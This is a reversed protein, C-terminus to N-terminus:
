KYGLVHAGHWKCINAVFTQLLHKVFINQPEKDVGGRSSGM